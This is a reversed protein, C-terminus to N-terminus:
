RAATLKKIHKNLKGLVISKARTFNGTRLLSLITGLVM